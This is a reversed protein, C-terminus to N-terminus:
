RPILTGKMLEALYDYDTTDDPDEVCGHLRAFQARIDKDDIYESDPYIFQLKAVIPLDVRFTDDLTSRLSKFSELKIELMKGKKVKAPYLNPDSDMMQVSNVDKLSYSIREILGTPSTVNNLVVHGAKTRKDDVTYNTTLGLAVGNYDHTSSSTNTYGMTGTIAM